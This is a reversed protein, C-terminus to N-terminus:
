KLSMKKNHMEVFKDFESTDSITNILNCSHNSKLSCDDIEFDRSKNSLFSPLSKPLSKSLQSYSDHYKPLFMEGFSVNNLIDSSKYWDSKIVTNLDMRQSIDACILKDLIDITETERENKYEDDIFSGNKSRIAKHIGYIDKEGDVFPENHIMEYLIVGISWSDAREHYKKDDKSNVCFLEPAMYVPSGFVVHSLCDPDWNKNYSFGFDCLKITKYNETVLINCPKIDRHVINNSHLFYIGDIMQIAYHRVYKDNIPRVLISELTGNNCLEMIIYVYSNNEVVDFYKIINKHQKNQMLFKIIKIERTMVSVGFVDLTIKHIRKIAVKEQTSICTGQYVSSFAGKGIQKSLDIKYSDNEGYLMSGNVSTKTKSINIKRISNKTKVSILNNIVLSNSFNDVM